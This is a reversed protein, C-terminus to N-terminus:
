STHVGMQMLRLTNITIRSGSRPEIVIRSHGDHDTGMENALYGRTLETVIDTDTGDLGFDILFLQLEHKETIEVDGDWCPRHPKAGAAEIWHEHENIDIGYTGYKVDTTPTFVTYQMVANEVSHETHRWPTADPALLKTGLVTAEGWKGNPDKKERAMIQAGVTFRQKM